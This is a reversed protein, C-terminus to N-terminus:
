REAMVQVTYAKVHGIPDNSLSSAPLAIGLKEFNQIVYEAKISFNVGQPVVGSTRLMGEARLTSVVVGIVRGDVLSM